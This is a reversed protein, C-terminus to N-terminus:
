PAFQHPGTKPTGKDAGPVLPFEAFLRDWAPIDYDNANANPAFRAVYRNFLSPVPWLPEKYADLQIYLIDCQHQPYQTRMLNLLKEAAARSTAHHHKFFYLVKKNSRALDRWKQILYQVKSYEQAYVEDFDYDQTFQRTGNTEHSLLRTHHVIGTGTDRIMRDLVPVINEKAYVNAFDSEILKFMTAYNCSTFRFFSSVEYGIRRFNLGAECNSGLSIYADYM